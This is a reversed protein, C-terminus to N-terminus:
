IFPNEKFFLDCTFSYESICEEIDQLARHNKSKSFRGDEGFWCGAAIRLSSVDLYRYHIASASYPLYERIFPFDVGALSNGALMLNFEDGSNHESLFEYFEQDVEHLPKGLGNKIEQLLGNETHMNRVYDDEIAADVVHYPYNIVTHFRGKEELSSDTVICAVELILNNTPDIGTTELDTWALHIEKYNNNPM